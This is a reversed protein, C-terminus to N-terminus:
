EPDSLIEIARFQVNLAQSGHLQLGFRGEVRGKEDKPLESIKWGNLHVTIRTGRASVTLDNWEGPKFRKAVEEPKPRSVWGRGDSDYLGGVDNKPEIQAQLGAMGLEGKEESRFYFGSDGELSRFQLRVTFDRYVVDSVLHGFEKESKAHRGTIVGDAISWEGKGSPHWGSTTKGDFIPKWTRRGLERIRVNRFRMKVPDKLGSHVQFALIGELDMSDIWDAIAVNNVWSRLHDGECSVRIKNWDDGKFAGRQIPNDPVDQLLLRRAEDYLRGTSPRTRDLDFQYGVMLEKDDIRSRVQIGSNGNGEPKVEFELIFDGYTKESCLWGYKGDGTEGLITGDDVKWKGGGRPSWGALTKGDFLSQFGNDQSV